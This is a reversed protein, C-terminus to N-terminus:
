RRERLFRGLKQDEELIHIDIWRAFFDLIDVVSQGSEELRILDALLGAHLGAHDRRADPPYDEVAMLAEEEAFHFIAYAYLDHLLEGRNVQGPSLGAAKEYLSFLRRHQDDVRPDGLEYEPRWVWTKM